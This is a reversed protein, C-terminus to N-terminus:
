RRSARRLIAGRAPAGPEAVNRTVFMREAMMTM